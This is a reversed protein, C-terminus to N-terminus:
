PVTEAAALVNGLERVWEEPVDIMPYHGWSPFVRLPWHVGLAQETWTLEQPNVVRDRGGWWVTIEALAGPRQRLEAELRRLFAPTLWAFFAPLAACQAYGAFFATRQSATLPKKFQKRVFRTQFFRCGFAWPLLRQLGRLRMLRPMWRHELGWLVPAQLLIPRGLWCGKARLALAFLGGIGTAYLLPSGRTSAATWSDFFDALAMLFADLDVARPRGEFGPYLIEYLTFLQEQGVASLASRAPELRGACHGNGGLFLVHGKM